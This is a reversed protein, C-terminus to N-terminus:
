KKGKPKETKEPKKEPKEAAKEAKALKATAEELQHKLKANEGKLHANEGKLQDNEAVVDVSSATKVIKSADIIGHYDLLNKAESEPLELSKGIELMGASTTFSRGSQNLVVLKKVAHEEGM